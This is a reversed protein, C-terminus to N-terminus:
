KLKKFDSEIKDLDKTIAKVADDIAKKATKGKAKVALVPSKTPHERRWAAFTVASDKNLYVRLIEAITLNELEVEIEDKSNKLINIEM